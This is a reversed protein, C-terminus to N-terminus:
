AQVEEAVLPQVLWGFAPLAPLHLEVRQGARARARGTDSGLLLLDGARLAMCGAVDALLTAADRVLADFRQVQALAGDVRVEIVFAAPDGAAAPAVLTPGVGLFGDLCKYKVPPRFLSEHPISLDSVLVYGAVSPRAPGGGPAFAPPGVVMAVSAGVEVEALGPPLPVPSGSASWTNATKVYLVPAKPAGKYPAADVQAGLRALEGPFNLATGYVTGAPWFPPAATPHPEM